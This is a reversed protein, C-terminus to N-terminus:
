LSWSKLSAENRAQVVEEIAYKIKVAVVKQDNDGAAELMKNAYNEIMILELIYDENHLIKGRVVAASGKVMHAYFYFKFFNLLKKM